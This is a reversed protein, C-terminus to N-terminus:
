SGGVPTKGLCPNIKRGVPHDEKSSREGGDWAKAAAEAWEWDRHTLGGTEHTTLRLTVRNLRIDIDPHHDCRSSLVAVDQVWRIAADFDELVYTRILSDGDKIWGQPPETPPLNM